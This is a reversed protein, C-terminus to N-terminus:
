IQFKIERNHDSFADIQLSRSFTSIMWRQALFNWDVKMKEIERREGICSILDIMKKIETNTLRAVAFFFVDAFKEDFIIRSIKLKRKEKTFFNAIKKSTSKLKQASRPSQKPHAERAGLM